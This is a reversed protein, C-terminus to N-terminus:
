ERLYLSIQNDMCKSCSYFNFPLDCFCYNVFDFIDLYNNFVSIDFINIKRYFKINLKKM